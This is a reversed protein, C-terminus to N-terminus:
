VGSLNKSRLNIVNEILLYKIFISNPNMPDDMRPGWSRVAM